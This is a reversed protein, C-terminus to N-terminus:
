LPLFPGRGRPRSDREARNGPQRGRNHPHHLVGRVRHVWRHGPLAARRQRHRRANRGSARHASLTHHYLTINATDGAIVAEIVTVSGGQITGTLTKGDASLSWDILEGGARLGPAPEGSFTYDLPLGEPDFADFTVSMTFANTQDDGGIPNVDANTGTLGEDSLRAFFGGATRFIPQLNDTASNLGAFGPGGFEDDDLLGNQRFGDGVHQSGLDVYSGTGDPEGGEPGAAPEIGASSFMLAVTEAPIETEGVFLILNAIAGGPVVIVTGDPQVFELDAGNARVNSIDADAPLRAINGNELEITVTVPPVSAEAQAVKVAGDATPSPPAAPLIGDYVAEVAMPIQGDIGLDNRIAM